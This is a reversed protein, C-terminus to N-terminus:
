PKQKTSATAADRDPERNWWGGGLSKFLAATDAHRAAQAQALNLRSQQHQREANLLTIYSVAGLQFQQRALDLSARASAEADAQAKLTQADLELARLVDAVNQFAQLLTERYQAEAQDFAAIAARRKATLEGGHFIPQALGAGISWVATGANFLNGIKDTESGISGTINLQPYLNATAVGVQACAAHLLEEAARTDPRQRVLTAPLSVPLERPLQLDTLEFEPLLAGEGPPKGALVALLHRTQALQKELPPLTARTQALLAEQALVDPRSGGGLQFQQDVLALQQEEETVIERTARIQARLAGEQVAATVLNATLTLWAGELQFRQYDVQAQLAELERRAGGALDLVYSVNVSANYLTFVSNGSEPQGFSAGAIEQRVISANGDVKPYLASGVLARLNEQAQRLTAQAAALTPNDALAQRVLRDLAPSHFLTWWQGPIDRGAVFRQAEGGTVPASATESSLPAATYANTTPAAPQRFDPGVACGTLAAATLAAVLARRWGCGPASASEGCIGHRNM